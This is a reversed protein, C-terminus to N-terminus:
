LAQWRTIKQAAVEESPAPRYGPVYDPSLVWCETFMKGGLVPFGAPNLQLAPRETAPRLDAGLLAGAPALTNKHGWFSVFPRARLERRLEDIPWPEITVPRRILTLPFTSGLLIPNKQRM